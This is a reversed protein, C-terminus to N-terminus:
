DRSQTYYLFCDHFSGTEGVSKQKLADPTGEAKIQGEVLIAVRQCIRDVFEMYHSSLIITAGGQVHARLRESLREMSEVDLGNLPEDLLIVPPHGLLAGVLGVKKRM